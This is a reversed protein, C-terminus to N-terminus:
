YEDNACWMGGPCNGDNFSCDVCIDKYENSNETM